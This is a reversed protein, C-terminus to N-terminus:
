GGGGGGRQSKEHTAIDIVEARWGLPLDHTESNRSWWSSTGKIRKKKNAKQKPLTIRLSKEVFITPEHGLIQGLVHRIQKNLEPISAEKRPM